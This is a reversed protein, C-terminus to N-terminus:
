KLAKAQRFKALLLPMKRRYSPFFLAAQIECRVARACIIAHTLMFKVIDFSGRAPLALLSNAV